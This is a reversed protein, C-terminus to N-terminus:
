PAPPTAPPDIKELLKDIREMFADFKVVAERAAAAAKEANAAAVDARTAAALSIRDNRRQGLRFLARWSKTVCGSRWLVVLIGGNGFLQILLTAWQASTTDTMGLMVIGVLSCTGYIALVISAM